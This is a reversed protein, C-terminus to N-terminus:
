CWLGLGWGLGFVGCFGRFKVVDSWLGVLGGGACCFGLFIPNLGVPDFGM